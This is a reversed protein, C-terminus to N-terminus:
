HRKLTSEIDIHLPSNILLRTLENQRSVGAKLFVRKLLNRATAVSNGEAAAVQELSKGQMVGLAVAAEARTFGFLERMRTFPVVFEQEPDFIMLSAAPRRGSQEHDPPLPAIMIQYPRKGSMRHVQLDASELPGGRSNTSAIVTNIAHQLRTDDAKQTAHLGGRMLALGDNGLLGEAKDNALFVAGCNDLIVLAVPAINATKWLASRMLGLQALQQSVQYARVAHPVLAELTHRQRDRSITGACRGLNAVVTREASNELCLMVGEEFKNPAVFSSYFPQARLEKLSILEDRFRFEGLTLVHGHLHAATNSVAYTKEALEIVASDIGASALCRGQERASRVEVVAAAGFGTLEASQALVASADEYGLMVSYMRDILTYIAREDM